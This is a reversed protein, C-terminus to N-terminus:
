PNREPKGSGGHIWSGNPLRRPCNNLYGHLHVVTREAHLHVFAYAPPDHSYPMPSVTQFDTAIQHNTGPLASFPIGRWSGSVPRHVHGFFLHRINSRGGIVAEFDAADDLKMRDLSPIDIDFPPHHM